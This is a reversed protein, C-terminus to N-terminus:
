RNSTLYTNCSKGLTYSSMLAEGVIGFSTILLDTEPPGSAVNDEASAFGLSQRVYKSTRSRFSQMAEVKCSKTSLETSDTELM